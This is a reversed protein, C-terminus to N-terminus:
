PYGVHDSYPSIKWRAIRLAFTGGPPIKKRNYKAHQQHNWPSLKMRHKTKM